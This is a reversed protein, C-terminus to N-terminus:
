SLLFLWSSSPFLCFRPVIKLRLVPTLFPCLFELFLCPCLCLAAEVACSPCALFARALPPSVLCLTAALLTVLCLLWLLSAASCMMVLHALPLFASVSPCPSPSSKTVLSCGM